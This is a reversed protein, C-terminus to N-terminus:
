PVAGAEPEAPARRLLVLMLGDLASGAPEVQRRRQDGPLRDAIVPGLGGILALREAPADGDLAAIGRAVEAAAADLIDRAVADGAAAADVVRPALSAYKTANAGLLWAQVPGAATGLTEAMAPGLCSSRRDRGDLHGLWWRIAQHGIWAGGGEDGAPFGWGSCEATRGDAHLRHVAVGTGVAAVTGPRGGLAGILSAYGDTMVRVPVGLPNLRHFRAVADPNRSGALAAVIRVPGGAVASELGVAALAEGIHHWAQEVGLTLSGPGATAEALVGGAADALRVRTGSAGGDIAVLRGDAPGPVL